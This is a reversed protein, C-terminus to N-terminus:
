LREEQCIIYAAQKGNIKNNQKNPQEMVSEQWSFSDVLWSATVNNYLLDLLLIEQSHCKYLVFSKWIVTVRRIKQRTESMINWSYQRSM